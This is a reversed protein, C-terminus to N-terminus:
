RKKRAHRAYEYNKRYKTVDTLDLKAM